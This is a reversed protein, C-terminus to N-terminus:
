QDHGATFLVMENSAAENSMDVFPLSSDLLLIFVRDLKRTVKNLIRPRWRKWVLLFYIPIGSILLALPALLYVRENSVLIIPVVALFAFTLAMMVPIVFWVKFPRQEDRRTIRMILLGVFVLTFNIAGLTTLGDILRGISGAVMLLFATIVGQIIVAVIPTQFKNHILGFVNMLNGDRATTYAIRSGSFVGATASGITSIAVMLPIIVLGADGLTSQALTLATAPSSLLESKSLGAIYAINVSLYCVTVCPVGILVGLLLNRKSNKNEEVTYGIGNWGDYSFAVSYFALVIEGVCTSTGEFSSTFNSNHNGKTLQWIGLSTVFLLALVKAVATINVFIATYRLSYVNILTIFTIAALACLKVSVDPPTEGGAVAQMFYRGCALVIVANSSPMIFFVHSWSFLFSLLNGCVVSAPKKRKFTYAEKLYAYEAGSNKIMNGLEVYCLGGGISLFGGATWLILALGFSGSYLLVRSPTIFIGSGIIRGIVLSITSFLTLEKKLSVPQSSTNKTDENSSSEM